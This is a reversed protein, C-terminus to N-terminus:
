IKDLLYLIQIIPLYFFSAFMVKLASKKSFDLILFFSQFLFFIGIIFVFFIFNNNIIQFKLPLFSFFILFLIYMVIHITTNINKSNKPLLKFGSFNYDNNAIWAISWFHPFQWIFQVGFIILSEHSIINTSASWGILPPLAGPLAGVLVSFPSFRKLPTYIFTYLFLSLLSLYFTLFNTYYLLLISVLILIFISFFFLNM